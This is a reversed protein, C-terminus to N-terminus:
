KSKLQEIAADCVDAVTRFPHSTDFRIDLRNEVAMATLMMSLSDLALDEVLRTDFSVSEVDLTPRVVKIVEKLEAFVEERTM